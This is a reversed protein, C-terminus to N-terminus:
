NIWGLPFIHGNCKKMANAMSPAAVGFGMLDDNDDVLLCCFDPNILPLFKNVYKKIQKDTLEVTGYLPSYATNVLEFVKKIYPKFQAKNHLDVKHYGTSKLVRDSIRKIKQYVKDNETGDGIPLLHEIWDVDKIYGLKELHKIYYPYNYYTIFMSRKDFGEVLLGERDLDCFGLPGHVEECHKEKAWNEVAEFLATSVNYDDIFDLQSFRMRNYHWKENARKNYIAGIRGVVQEGKYALFMKYECYEMAPNSDDWDQMDDNFFAPIFNIENKYFKNPFDVFIKKQKKTKVEIVKVVDM